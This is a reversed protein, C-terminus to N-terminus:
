YKGFFKEIMEQSLPRPPANPNALQHGCKACKDPGEIWIEGTSVIESITIIVPAKCKACTERYEVTAPRPGASTTLTVALAMMGKLESDVVRRKGVLIKM